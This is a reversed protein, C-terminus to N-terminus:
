KQNIKYYLPDTCEPLNTMYEIFETDEAKPLTHMLPKSIDFYVFNEDDEQKKVPKKNNQSDDSPNTDTEMNVMINEIDELTKREEAEPGTQNDNKEQKIKPLGQINLPDSLLEEYDYSPIDPLNSLDIKSLPDNANSLPNALLSDASANLLMIQPVSDYDYQDYLHASSLNQDHPERFELLEPEASKFAEIPQPPPLPQPISANVQHQALSQEFKKAEEPSLRRKLDRYTNEPIEYQFGYLAIVYRM